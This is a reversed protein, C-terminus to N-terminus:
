KINNDYQVRPYEDIQQYALTDIQDRNLRYGLNALDQYCNNLDHASYFAHEFHIITPRVKTQFLQSLIQLDYGETDIQLLDLQKIKHKKFLTELTMTKVRQRVIKGKYDHGNKLVAQEHFSALMTAHDPLKKDNFAYLIQYGNKDSIAVNEYKLNKQNLNTDYNKLLENFIKKQPEVFIGKAFHKLVFPRIPDLSKGNHAGIQIFSFGNGSWVLDKMVLEFVNISQINM